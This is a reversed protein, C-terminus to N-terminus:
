IRRDDSNGGRSMAKIQALAQHSLDKQTVLVVELFADEKGLLFRDALIKTAFFLSTFKVLM